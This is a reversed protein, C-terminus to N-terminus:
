NRFPAITLRANKFICLAVEITEIGLHHSQLNPDPAAFVAALETEIGLHHSQLFLRM